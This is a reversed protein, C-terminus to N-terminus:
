ASAPRPTASSAAPCLPPSDACQTVGSVFHPSYSCSAVLIAIAGLAVALPARPSAMLVSRGAAGRGRTRRALGRRAPQARRDGVRARREPQRGHLYLLTGAALAAAGVGYGVWQLTADRKGASDTSSSYKKGVDDAASQAAAGFGIGAAILAVGGAATAIGAIRWGRGDSAASPPASPPM